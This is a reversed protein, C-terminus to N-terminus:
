HNHPFDFVLPSSQPGQKTAEAVLPLDCTGEPRGLSLATLAEALSGAESAASTISQRSVDIWIRLFVEKQTIDPWGQGSGTNPNIQLPTSTMIVPIHRTHVGSSGTLQTHNGHRLAAQTTLALPVTLQARHYVDQICEWGM